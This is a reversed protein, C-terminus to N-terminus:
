WSAILQLNIMQTNLSASVAEYLSKFEFVTVLHSTFDPFKNAFDVVLFSVEAGIEVLLEEWYRVWFDVAFDTPIDVPCRGVGGLM